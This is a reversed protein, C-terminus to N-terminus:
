DKVKLRNLEETLRAIESRLSNEYEESTYLTVSYGNTKGILRIPPCVIVGEGLFKSYEIHDGLERRMILEVSESVQIEMTKGMGVADIIM